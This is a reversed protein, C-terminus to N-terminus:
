PTQIVEPSVPLPDIRYVHFAHAIKDVPELQQLYELGNHGPLNYLRKVSVIWWQTETISVSIDNITRDKGLEPLSAQPLDFLEGNMGFYNLDFKLPRHSPHQTIWQNVSLLDQGWDVSSYSLVRWGNDSGVTSNFFSLFHPFASMSSYVTSLCLLISVRSWTNKQQMCKPLASALVFMPPYIMLVYRHHHNFGGQLSITAFAIVAPIAIMALTSCEDADWKRVYVILGLLAAILTPLPTKVLTSICYYYWWSGFKWEGMLFSWYKTEVEHRLFDVGLVFDKPLPVPLPSLISDAFRNGLKSPSAEHGGFFQSCFEYDGLRTFTGSFLYGLNLLFIAVTSSV